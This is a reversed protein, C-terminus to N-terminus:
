DDAKGKAARQLESSMEVGKMKMGLEFLIESLSERSVKADELSSIHTNLDQYIQDRLARIEQQLKGRTDSVEKRIASAEDSTEQTLTTLNASFKKETQELLKRLATNEEQTSTGLLKLKKELSQVAAAIERVLADKIDELQSSTQQRFAAFDSEIKQFRTDYERRQAGFIIDRIQDINDTANQAEGNTKKSM